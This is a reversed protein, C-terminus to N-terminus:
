TEIEQAQRFLNMVEVNTDRAHHNTSAFQNASHQLGHERRRDTMCECGVLFDNRIILTVKVWDWPKSSFRNRVFSQVHFM